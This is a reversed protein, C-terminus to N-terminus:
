LVKKVNNVECNMLHYRKRYVSPSVGVEKKFIQSFYSLNTYGVSLSVDTVLRGNGLLYKSRKIRLKILYHKFGVGMSKRFLRSFYTSNVYLHNAVSKLNLNNDHLNNEIFILAEIIKEDNVNILDNFQIKANVINCILLFIQAKPMENIRILPIDLKELDDTIQENLVIVMKAKEIPRKKLFRLDSVLVIKLKKLIFKEKDNFINDKDYLLTRNVRLEQGEKITIGELM